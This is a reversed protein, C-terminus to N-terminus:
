VDLDVGRAGGVLVQVTTPSGTATWTAKVQANVQTTSPLQIRQSGVDTMADFSLLTTWTDGDPSHEITVTISPSTGGDLAWVHLQAAYGTVTEGGYLTNDDALGAGSSGSLLATPSLLIFGDDYAGRADLELSFDNPDKLKASRSADIISSPQMTIPQLMELGELAYWANLPSRRGFWQNLWYNIQGREMAALGKVKLSGEQMGPMSNRVRTGFGSGDIKDAKLSHEIDNSQASWLFQELGWQAEYGPYFVTQQKLDVAPM